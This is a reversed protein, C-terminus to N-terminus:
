RFKKRCTTCTASTNLWQEFCVKHYCTKCACKGSKVIHHGEEFSELCIPCESEAHEASSFPIEVIAGDRLEAEEATFGESGTPVSNGDFIQGALEQVRQALRAPFRRLERKAHDAAAQIEAAIEEAPRRLQERIEAARDRGQQGGVSAILNAFTGAAGTLAEPNAPSNGFLSGMAGFMKELTNPDSFLARTVAMPDIEGNSSSAQAALSEPDPEHAEERTAEDIAAQLMDDLPDHEKLNAERLRLTKQDSVKVDYRKSGDKPVATVTGVTGNYQANSLSHAQVEDGVSFKPQWDADATAFIQSSFLVFLLLSLNRLSKM